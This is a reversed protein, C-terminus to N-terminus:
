KPRKICETYKKFDCDYRYDCDACHRKKFIELRAKIQNDPLHKFGGMVKYVSTSKDVSRRKSCAGCAM